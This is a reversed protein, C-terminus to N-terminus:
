SPEALRGALSSVIEPVDLAAQGLMVLDAGADLFVKVDSVAKDLSVRGDAELGVYGSALLFLNSSARAEGLIALDPERRAENRINLHLGLAGLRELKRAVEGFDAVIQTAGEGPTYARGKVILPLSSAKALRSAIQYLNARNEPKLHAYGFGRELRAPSSTHANYELFDGGARAFAGAFQSLAGIDEGGFNVAVSAGSAKARKVELKLFEEFAEPDGGYREAGYGGIQVMATGRGYEGCFQGTTINVMAAIGIGGRLQDLTIERREPNM